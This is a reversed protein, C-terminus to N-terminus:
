RRRPRTRGIAVPEVCGRQAVGVSISLFLVAARSARRRAVTGFIVVSRVYGMDTVDRAVVAIFDL